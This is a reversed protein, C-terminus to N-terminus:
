HHVHIICVFRLNSNIFSVAMIGPACGAWCISWFRSLRIGMMEYIAETFKKTGFIWSIAITQFFCVFLLCMGSASYYDMLQFV